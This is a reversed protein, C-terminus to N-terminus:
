GKVVVECVMSNPSFRLEQKAKSSVPTIKSILIHQEIYWLKAHIQFGVFFRSWGYIMFSNTISILSDM